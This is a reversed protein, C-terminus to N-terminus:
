DRPGPDVVVVLDSGPARLVWTNTGDLTMPGANPARVLEAFPPGSLADIMRGGGDRTAPTRRACRRRDPSGGAPAADHDDAAADAARRGRTRRDSERGIGM